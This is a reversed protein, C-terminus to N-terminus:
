VKFFTFPGKTTKDQLKAHEKELADKGLKATDEAEKFAEVADKALGTTYWPFSHSM